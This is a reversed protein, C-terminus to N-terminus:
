LKNCLARLQGDQNSHIPTHQYYFLVGTLVKNWMLNGKKKIGSEERLRHVWQHIWADIGYLAYIGHISVNYWLKRNNLVMGYSLSRAHLKKIVLNPQNYSGGLAALLMRTHIERALSLLSICSMCVMNIYKYSAQKSAVALTTHRLWTPLLSIFHFHVNVLHYRYTNSFLLITVM